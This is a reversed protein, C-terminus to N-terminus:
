THTVTVAYTIPSAQNGIDFVQVCYAGAAVTGSLQPTAGAQTQVTGTPFLTCASSTADWSGVGLGMFITAPPGAATLTVSVTGQAAVTFPHTDSQQVQVTGTFTETSQTPTTPNLGLSNNTPTSSTCAAAFVTLFVAFLTSLRM